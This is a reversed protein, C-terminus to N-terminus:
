LSWNGSPRPFLFALFGLTYAKVHIFSELYYSSSRPSHLFFKGVADPCSNRFMPVFVHFYTFLFSWLIIPLRFTAACSYGFLLLSPCHFFWAATLFWSVTCLLLAPLFHLFSVNGCHDFHYLFPFFLLQSLM